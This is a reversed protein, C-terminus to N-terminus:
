YMNYDHKDWPDGVLQDTYDGGGNMRMLQHYNRLTQKSTKNIWSDPQQKRLKRLGIDKKGGCNCCDKMLDGLEDCFDVHKFFRIYLCTSFCFMFASITGFIPIAWMSGPDYVDENPNISQTCPCQKGCITVHTKPNDTDPDHPPEHYCCCIDEWMFLCTILSTFYILAHSRCWCWPNCFPKDNGKQCCDVPNIPYLVKDNSRTRKSIVYAMSPVGWIAGWVTFILILIADHNGTHRQCCKGSNDNPHVDNLGNGLDGDEHPDNENEDGLGKNQDNDYYNDGNVGSAVAKLVLPQRLKRRKVLHFGTKVEM